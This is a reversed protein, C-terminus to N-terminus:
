AYLDRRTPPLDSAGKARRSTLTQNIMVTGREFALACGALYILWLRAREEGIEACGAAFNAELRTAWIRCTRRYHEHWNEVDHVEFGHAELKRTDIRPRLALRALAFPDRLAITAGGKTGLFEGTWLRIAFAPQSRLLTGFSIPM